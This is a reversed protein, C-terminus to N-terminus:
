AQEFYNVFNCEFHFLFIHIIIYNAPNKVAIVAIRVNQYVRKSLWRYWNCRGCIGCSDSFPSELALTM